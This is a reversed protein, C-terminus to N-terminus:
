DGIAVERMPDSSWGSFSPVFLRGQGLGAFEAAVLLMCATVGSGCSAILDEGRAVSRAHFADILQDKPRLRGDDALLSTWPLNRAGPIHGARPDIPEVDGRYREPARADLLRTDASMDDLDESVSLLTPPWEVVTRSVPLRVRPTQEREGPWNEMGGNLVAAEHGIARLMWVLRAATGGGSDDYAVVFDEDAIGAAGLATAFAEATPLPHRGLVAPGKSALARDLDLFIAGALHATRYADLGSRGDLYWRVDVLVPAPTRADVEEADIVPPPLTQAM